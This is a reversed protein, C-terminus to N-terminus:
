GERAGRATVLIHGGDRTAACQWARQCGGGGRWAASRKCRSTGSPSAGPGHGADGGDLRGRGGRRRGGWGAGWGGFVCVLVLGKRRKWWGREAADVPPATDAAMVIGAGEGRCRGAPRTQRWSLVRGREAASRRPRLRRRRNAARLGLTGYREDRVLRRRRNAARFGLTEDRVSLTILGLAHYKM